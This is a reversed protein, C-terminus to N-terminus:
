KAIKQSVLVMRMDSYSIEGPLNEKLIKLSNFGLLKAAKTIAAQKEKSVMEDILLEGTGRYFSM